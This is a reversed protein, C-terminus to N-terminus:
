CCLQLVFLAGWFGELLPLLAPFCLARWLIGLQCSSESASMAPTEATSLDCPRNFPLMQFLPDRSDLWFQLWIWVSSLQSILSLWGVEGTAQASPASRKRTTFM